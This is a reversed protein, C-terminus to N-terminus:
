GNYIRLTNEYFSKGYLKRDRLFAKGYVIKAAIIKVYWPFWDLKEQIINQPRDGKLEYWPMNCDFFYVKFPLTREYQYM